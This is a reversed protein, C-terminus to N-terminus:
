GGFRSFPNKPKSYHQRAKDQNTLYESKRSKFVKSSSIETSNAQLNNVIYSKKHPSMSSIVVDGSKTTYIKIGQEHLLDRVSQRPHDFQSGYPSSCIAVKPKLRKLFARTTFGNDAGHHALILIDTECQLTTRGKLYDAINTCELDGLSLVNFCGTRFFKVSSNNNSSETDIKKPWYLINRYGWKTGPKLSDLYPPDVKIVTKQPRNKYANIIKLCEKGTESHPDYGPHEIKAPAWTEIIEELDAKACHDTDWSTIHLCHITSIGCAKLEAKLTRRNTNTLRAEILTFHSGDFYSFSSGASGLQYARFRTPKQQLLSEM